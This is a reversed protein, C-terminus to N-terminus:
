VCNKDPISITQNVSDVLIGLCVVATSPAVLKNTSIELGLDQLLQLLYQYSAHIDSPLGIYILDDIYNLLNPYGFKKMIYRIADSCKQFFFSGHRFGFALSGDIYYSGHKLGLLDLDGPDIRIHRFARSINVKYILAGPGLRKDVIHDVSPYSLHYYSGLYKNKSVGHNVSFGLPWSLDVITRRNDSGPKDRTMLPSIHMKIPKDNFPGYMANYSVENDLCIGVDKSFQQASSHNDESSSLACSRDFDIPFGYEILDPLQKDWYDILHTRWVTPNLQGKLPVRCGLFNPKNSERVKRHLDFIDAVFTNHTDTGQYTLQDTIPFVGFDSGNQALCQVFNKCQFRQSWVRMPIATNAFCSEFRADDTHSDSTCVLDAVNDINEHPLLGKNPPYTKYHCGVTGNEVSSNTISNKFDNKSGETNAVMTDVFGASTRGSSLVHHSVTKNVLHASENDGLVKISDEQLDQLIQFKNTLAVSAVPSKLALGLPKNVSVRVVSKTPNIKTYKGGPCGHTNKVIPAPVACTSPEFGKSSSSVNAFTNSNSSAVVQAHGVTQRQFLLKVRTFGTPGSLRLPM